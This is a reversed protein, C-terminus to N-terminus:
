SICTLTEGRSGSLSMEFPAVHEYSVYFELFGKPRAMVLQV